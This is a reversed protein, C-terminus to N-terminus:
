KVLNKKKLCLITNVIIFCYVLLVKSGAFLVTVECCLLDHPSFSSCFTSYWKSLDRFIICLICFFFFHKCKFFQLDGLLRQFQRIAQPVHCHVVLHSIYCSTINVHVQIYDNFSSICSWWIISKPM